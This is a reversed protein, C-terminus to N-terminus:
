DVAHAERKQSRPRGSSRSRTAMTASVGSEGQKGNMAEARRGDGVISATRSASSAASASGSRASVRAASPRMPARMTSAPPNHDPSPSRAPLQPRPSRADRMPARGASSDSITVGAFAPTWLEGGATAFDSLDSGATQIGAERPCSLCPATRGRSPRRERKRLAASIARRREAKAVTRCRLANRWSLLLTGVNRAELQM